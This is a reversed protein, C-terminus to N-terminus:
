SILCPLPRVRRCFVWKQREGDGRAVTVEDSFIWLKWFDEPSTLYRRAFALRKDALEQTLKPRRLAKTHQIGESKLWRTITDVHCALGAQTKIEANSIFPNQSILRLIHRKDYETLTRPRGSRPLSVASRQTRYRKAIGHVSNPSCGEKAAVWSKPIGKEVAVAIRTRKHPSYHKGPTRVDMKPRNTATQLLYPIPPNFVVIGFRTAFLPVPRFKQPTVTVVAPM